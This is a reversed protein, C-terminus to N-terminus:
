SLCVAIAKFRLTPRYLNVPTNFQVHMMRMACYLTFLCCLATRRALATSASQTIRYQHSQHSVIRCDDDDDDDVPDASSCYYLRYSYSYVVLFYSFYRFM